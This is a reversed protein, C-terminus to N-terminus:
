RVSRPHQGTHLWLCLYGLDSLMITLVLGKFLAGCLHTQQSHGGGWVEAMFGQWMM